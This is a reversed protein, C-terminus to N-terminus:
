VRSAATVASNLAEFALAQFILVSSFSTDAKVGYNVLEQAIQAEVLFLARRAEMASYRMRSDVFEYRDKNVDIEIGFNVSLQELIREGMRLM